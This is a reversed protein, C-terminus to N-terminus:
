RRGSQPTYLRKFFRPKDATVSSPQSAVFQTVAGLYDRQNAKFALGFVLHAIKFAAHRTPGDHAFTVANRTIGIINEFAHSAIQLGDLTEHQASQGFGGIHFTYFSRDNQSHCLILRPHRQYSEHKQSSAAQPIAKAKPSM